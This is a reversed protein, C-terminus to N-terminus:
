TGSQGKALKTLREFEESPHLIDFLEGGHRRLKLLHRALLDRANVHRRGDDEVKFNVFYTDMPRDPKKGGWIPGGHVILNREACRKKLNTLVAVLAKSRDDLAKTSLLSVIFDLRREEGPFAMLITDAKVPDCDLIESVFHRLLNSVAGWVSVVRGIEVLLDPHREFPSRM